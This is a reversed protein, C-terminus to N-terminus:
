LQSPGRRPADDCFCRAADCFFHQVGHLATPPVPALLASVTTSSNCGWAHRGHVSRMTVAPQEHRGRAPRVKTTHQGDAPRASVTHQVHASRAKRQRACAGDRHRANSSLRFPVSAALAARMRQMETGSTGILIGAVCLEATIARGQWIAMHWTDARKTRATGCALGDIRVTIRM